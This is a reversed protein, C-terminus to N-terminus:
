EIAGSMGNVRVGQKAATKARGDEGFADAIYYYNRDRFCVWKHKLSLRHSEAVVRYAERPTVRFGEPAAMEAPPWGATKWVEILMNQSKGNTSLACSSVSSALALSAMIRALFDWKM